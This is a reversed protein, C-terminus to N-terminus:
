PVNESRTGKWYSARSKRFTFREGSCCYANVFTGYAVHGGCMVGSLRQRRDETRNDKGEGKPTQGRMRTM